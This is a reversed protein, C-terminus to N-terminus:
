SDEKVVFNMYVTLLDESYAEPLPPLPHAAFIARMAAQDFFANGSSEEVTVSRKDISGDKKITFRVVLSDAKSRVPPPAWQWRIKNDIKQLYSPFRFSSSGVAGMGTGGAGGGGPGGISSSVTNGPLSSLGGDGQTAGQNSTMGTEGQTGTGGLVGGSTQPSLRPSETKEPKPLNQPSPSMPPIPISKREIDIKATRTRTEIPVPKKKEVPKKEPAKLARKQKKWWDELREPDNQAPPVDKTVKVLPPPLKEVPADPMASESKKRAPAPPPSAIPPKESSKAAPLGAKAVSGGTPAALIEGANGGGPDSGILNVQFGQLDPARITWFLHNVMLFAFFFLHLVISLAM